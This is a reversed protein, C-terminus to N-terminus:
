MANLLNKLIKFRRYVRKRREERLAQLTLHRLWENPFACM